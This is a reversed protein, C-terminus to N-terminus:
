KKLQAIFLAIDEADKRSLPYNPMTAHPMLLFSAIMNANIAERTAISAFSPARNFTDSASGIAHCASCWRESLRRGNEVNQAFTRQIGAPVFFMAALIFTLLRM